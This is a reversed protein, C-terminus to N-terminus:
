ANWQIHCSFLHRVSTRLIPGQQVTEMSHTRLYRSYPKICTTMSPGPTHPQVQATLALPALCSRCGFWLCKVIILVWSSINMTRVSYKICSLIIFSCIEIWLAIVKYKAVLYNWKKRLQNPNLIHELGLEEMIESDFSILLFCRYYNKCLKKRSDIFWWGVYRYFPILLRPPYLVIVMMSLFFM